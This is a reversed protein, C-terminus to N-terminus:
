CVFGAMNKELVLSGYASAALEDVAEDEPDVLAEAGTAAVAGSALCTGESASHCALPAAPSPAM